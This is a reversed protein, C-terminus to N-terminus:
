KLLDSGMGTPAASPVSTPSRTPMPTSVASECVCARDVTCSNGKWLDGGAGMTFCGQTSNDDFSTFNGYPSGDEWAHEGAASITLGLWLTSAGGTMNMFSSFKTQKEASTITVPYGGVSGCDQQCVTYNVLTSSTHLFCYQNGTLTFNSICHQGSVVVCLNCM